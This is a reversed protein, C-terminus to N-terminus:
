ARRQLIGEQLVKTLFNSMIFGVATTNTGTTDPQGKNADLIEGLYPWGWGSFVELFIYIYIKKLSLDHLRGLVTSDADTM